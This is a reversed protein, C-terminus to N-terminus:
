YDPYPKPSLRKLAKVGKRDLGNEFVENPTLSLALETQVEKLNVAGQELTNIM